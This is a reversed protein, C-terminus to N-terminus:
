NKTKERLVKVEGSVVRAWEKEAFERKEELSMNDKLKKKDLKDM